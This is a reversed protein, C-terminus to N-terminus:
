SVNIMKTIKQEGSPGEYVAILEYVGAKGFWLGAGWWGQEVDIGDPSTELKNQSYVYILGPPSTGHVGISNKRGVKAIAPVIFTFIVNQNQPPPVQNMLYKTNSHISTASSLLSSATIIGDVIGM